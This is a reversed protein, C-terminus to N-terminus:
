GGCCRGGDLAWRARRMRWAAIWRACHGEVTLVFFPMAVFTEALVAGATTFPLRVDFAYDLWQGLLGRRGFAFLLAVGGVVPPLVIPLMTIGRLLARGPFEVRAQVWALPLGLVVSCGTACVSCVLSLWLATYVAPTRLVGWVDQHLARWLLGLLPLVFIAAGVSSLVVAVLPIADVHRRGSV